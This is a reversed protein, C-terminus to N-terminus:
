IKPHGGEMYSGEEEEEDWEKCEKELEEDDQEGKGRNDVFCALRRLTHRVLPASAECDHDVAEEEAEEEEASEDEEHDCSM